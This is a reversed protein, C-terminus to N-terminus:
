REPGPYAPEPVRVECGFESGLTTKDSGPSDSACHMRNGGLIVPDIHETTWASPELLPEVRRRLFTANGVTIEYDPKEIM